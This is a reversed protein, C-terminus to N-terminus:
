TKTKKKLKHQQPCGHECPTGAACSPCQNKRDPGSRPADPGPHSRPCNCVGKSKAAPPDPNLRRACSRHCAPCAAKEHAGTFLQSCWQCRNWCDATQYNGGEMLIAKGEVLATALTRRAKEYVRTFTPRSVQMQRAAQQHSLGLFDALRVAEYEEFLLVVRGLKRPPLGFPKFGEMLPPKEISRRNVPRAM